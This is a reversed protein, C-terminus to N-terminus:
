LDCPPDILSLSSHEGVWLPQPPGLKLMELSIGCLVPMSVDNQTNEPNLLTNKAEKM